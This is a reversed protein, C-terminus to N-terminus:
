TAPELSVALAQSVVATITDGVKIERFHRLGERSRVHVTSVVGGSPPVLQLTHNSPDIGVVLGSVVTRTTVTGSPNAGKPAGTATATLSSDPLKGNPSSLVLAVSETYRVLVTDGQKLKDFNIVQPGAIVTFRNGAPGALTVARTAPDVAQVTARATVTDVAGIGGMGSAQAAATSALPPASLLAAVLVAASLFQATRTSIRTM